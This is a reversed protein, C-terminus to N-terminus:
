EGGDDQAPGPSQGPEKKYPRRFALIMDRVLETLVFGMVIAFVAVPLGELWLALWFYELTQLWRWLIGMILPYGAIFIITALANAVALFFVRKRTPLQYDSATRVGQAVRDLDDATIKTGRYSPQNM